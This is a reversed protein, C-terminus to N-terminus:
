FEEKDLFNDEFRGYLGDMQISKARSLMLRAEEEDVKRLFQGYEKMVLSVGLKKDMRQLVLAQEFCQNAVEFERGKVHRRAAVLLEKVRESLLVRPLIVLDVFLLSLPLYVLCGSWGQVNLYIFLFLLGVTSYLLWSAKILLLLSILRTRVSEEGLLRGISAPGIVVGVIRYFNSIFSQPM